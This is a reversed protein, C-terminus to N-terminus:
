FLFAYLDEASVSYCHLLNYEDICLLFQPKRKQDKKKNKELFQIKKFLFKKQQM